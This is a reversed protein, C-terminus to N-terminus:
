IYVSHMMYVYYTQSQTNLKKIKEEKQASGNKDTISILYTFRSFYIGQLGTVWDSPANCSHPYNETKL